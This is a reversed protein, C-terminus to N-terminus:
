RWVQEVPRGPRRLLGVAIAINLLNWLIRNLFPIGTRNFTRKNQILGGLVLTQDASGTDAEVRDVWARRQLGPDPLM